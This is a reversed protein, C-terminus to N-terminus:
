CQPEGEDICACVAVCVVRLLRKGERAHLISENCDTIL